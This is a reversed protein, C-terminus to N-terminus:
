RKILIDSLTRRVATTTGLVEFALDASDTLEDGVEDLVRSLAPSAVLARGAAVRQRWRRLVSDSPDILLGFSPKIRPERSLLGLATAAGVEPTCALLEVLAAHVDEPESDPNEAVAVLARIDAVAV